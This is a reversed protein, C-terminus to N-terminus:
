RRAQTDSQQIKLSLPLGAVIFIDSAQREAAIRLIEEADMRFGEMKSYYISHKREMMTAKWSNRKGAVVRGNVM